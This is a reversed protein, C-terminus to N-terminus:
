TQEEISFIYDNDPDSRGHFEILIIGKPTKIRHKDKDWAANLATKARRESLGWESMLTKLAVESGLMPASEIIQYLAKGSRPIRIYRVTVTCGSAKMPSPGVGRAMDIAKRARNWSMGYDEHLTRITKYDEGVIMKGM